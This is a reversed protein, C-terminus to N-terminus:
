PVQPESLGLRAACRMAAPFLRLREQFDVDSLAEGSCVAVKICDKNTKLIDARAAPICM